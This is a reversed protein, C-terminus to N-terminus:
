AHIIRAHVQLRRATPAQIVVHAHAPIATAATAIAHAETSVRTTRVHALTPRASRAQTAVRAHASAAQDQPQQHEVM